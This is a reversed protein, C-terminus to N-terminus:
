FGYSIGFGLNLTHIIKNEDEFKQRTILYGPEFVASFRRSFNYRLLASPYCGIGNGDMEIGDDIYFTANSYGLLPRLDMQFDKWLSVTFMPGVMINTISWMQDVSSDKINYSSNMISASMGYVGHFTYGIIFSSNGGAVSLDSHLNLDPDFDGLPFSPGLLLGLFWKHNYPKEYINLGDTSEHLFSYRELRHKNRMFNEYSGNIPIKVKVSGILAGTGAGVVTAPVGFVVMYMGTWGSEGAKSALVAAGTLGIVSGIIAGTLVSNTRRASVRGVSKYDISQLHINDIPYQFKVPSDYVLISSDKIEFLLGEIIESQDQLHVWTDFKRHRKESEDQASISHIGSILIIISLTLKYINKIWYM